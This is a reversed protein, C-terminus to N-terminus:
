LIFKEKVDANFSLYCKSFQQYYGLLTRHYPYPGFTSIPRAGTACAKEIKHFFKGFLSIFFAARTAMMRAAPITRIRRANVFDKVANGAIRHDGVHQVRSTTGIDSLDDHHYPLLTFLYPRDDSIRNPVHDLFGLQPRTM